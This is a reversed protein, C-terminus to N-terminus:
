LKHLDPPPWFILVARGVVKDLRISGFTRSDFSRSENDGMVFISDDPVILTYPQDLPIETNNHYYKDNVMVSGNRITVRDGGVAVVRKILMESSGIIDKLVVVDGRAPNRGFRYKVVFVRDGEHLTPQMSIGRVVYPRGIFVIMILLALLIILPVIM